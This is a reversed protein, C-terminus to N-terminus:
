PSTVGLLEDLLSIAAASSWDRAGQSGAIVQGQRDLLFSVPLNTAGYQTSVRQDTDLLIPFTVGLKDIFPRVVAAGERDSSVALIIFDHDSYRQFSAEMAPMEQLCPPCWTAWFNVLVFKGRFQALETPEGDLRPLSFAPAAFPPDFTVLNFGHAGAEHAVVALSAFLGFVFTLFYRVTNKNM